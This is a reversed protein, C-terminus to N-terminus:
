TIPVELSSYINLHKNKNFETDYACQSRESYNDKGQYSVKSWQGLACM